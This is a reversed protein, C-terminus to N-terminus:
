GPAHCVRSRHGAGPARDPEVEFARIHRRRSDNVYLIREDPSFALGNPLVFDWALVHISGLDPAVRYVGCFDLESEIRGLGPDTSTSAAMPSSSWMMRGISDGGTITTPWWQSVAMRTRVPSADPLINAPWCGARVTVPSAMPKTPRNRSWVPVPAPTWKIRRNHGIDSFLLYGGEHWWLPGEAPGAQGGFGTALEEVNQQLDVIRELGPAHQEIPM